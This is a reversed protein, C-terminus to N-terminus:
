AADWENSTDADSLDDIAADLKLRDWLVCGDLKIPKPM